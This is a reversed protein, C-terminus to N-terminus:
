ISYLMTPITVYFIKASTRESLNTHSITNVSLLTWWWVTPLSSSLFLETKIESLIAAANLQYQMNMLVFIFRFFSGVRNNIDPFEPRNSKGM